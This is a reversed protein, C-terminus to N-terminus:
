NQVFFVTEKQPPDTAEPAGFDSMRFVYLVFRQLQDRRLRSHVRHCLRVEQQRQHQRMDPQMRREGGPVRRHRCAYGSILDVKGPRIRNAKFHIGLWFSSYGVEPCFCKSIDGWFQIKRTHTPGCSLFNNQRYEGVPEKKGMQM